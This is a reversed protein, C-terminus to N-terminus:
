DSDSESLPAAGVSFSRELCGKCQGCAFWDWKVADPQPNECAMTCDFCHWNEYYM